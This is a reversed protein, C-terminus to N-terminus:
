KIKATVIRIFGDYRLLKKFGEVVFSIALSIALLALLIWAFHGRSYTFDALYYSRIFTHVLFINMSHKGLFALVDRLGLINLVYEVCFLIVATPVFGWHFEWFYSIPLYLYMKYLGLICACEVVCKVAKGWSKKTGFRVWRDLMQYRAFAAGIILPSLFAYVSNDGTFVENGNGGFIVRLFVISAALVLWLNDRLRYLVPFALIFVLAASMYWWTGNLSATEFLKAGGIFDISAEMLGRWFGNQFFITQFRRNILQCVVASLGWIFWFGSFSSIYRKLVWKSAPLEEERYSLFLGYGSVFAFMSVCIKSALAINVIMQERFPFFSVAYGDFLITSRFCHHLLMLLIAVGKLAQSERKGFVSGNRCQEVKEM